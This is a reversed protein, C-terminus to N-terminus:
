WSQYQVLNWAASLFFLFLFFHCKAFWKKGRLALFTGPIWQLPWTLCYPLHPTHVPFHSSSCALFKSTTRTSPRIVQSSPSPFHFASLHFPFPLIFQPLFSFLLSPQSLSPFSPPSQTQLTDIGSESEWDHLFYNLRSLSLSGTVM